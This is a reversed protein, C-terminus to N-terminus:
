VACFTDADSRLEDARRGSLSEARCYASGRTEPYDDAHRSRSRLAGYGCQAGHAMGEPLLLAGALAVDRYQWDLFEQSTAEYIQQIQGDALAYHILVPM